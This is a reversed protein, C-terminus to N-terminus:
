SAKAKRRRHPKPTEIAACDSEDQEQDPVVEQLQDSRATVVHHDFRMTVTESIPQVSLVVGVTGKRLGFRPLDVALQLQRTPEAHPSNM